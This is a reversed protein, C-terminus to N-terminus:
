EWQLFFNVRSVGNIQVTPSSYLRKREQKIRERRDERGQLEKTRLALEYRQTAQSILAGIEFIRTQSEPSAPEKPEGIPANSPFALDETANRDDEFQVITVSSKPGFMHV